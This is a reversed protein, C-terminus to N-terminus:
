KSKSQKLKEKFEKDKKIREKERVKEYKEKNGSKIMKRKPEDEESDDESINILAEPKIESSGKPLTLHNYIDSIHEPRLLLFIDDTQLFQVMFVPVKHDVMAHYELKEIDEMRIRYSTADTSKHQCILSDNFGDEKEIWGGGSQKTPVLGFRKMVEKENKFYFKGDRKACM